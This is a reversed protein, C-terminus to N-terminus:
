APPAAARSLADILEDVSPRDEPGRSWYLWRLRTDSDFVADGGLQLTDQEPRHLRRGRALLRAYRVWVRPHLWARAVSARGFGLAGYLERDPDSYLPLDLDLDLERAYAALRGPRAFSVVIVRGPLEAGRKSM